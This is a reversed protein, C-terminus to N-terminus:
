LQRQFHHTRLLKLISYLHYIKSIIPIAKALIAAKYLEVIFPEAESGGSIIVKEGQKLSLSYNIILKALKRARLDVPM